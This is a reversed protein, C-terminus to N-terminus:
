PDIIRVGAPPVFRFVSEPVAVNTQLGALDFRRVSGNHETIEFRRALSDRTDIWVRLSRYDARERPILNLVRAPRGGVNEVGELTYEFRETPEGVFQAQLDVGGTGGAAPTRIAQGPNLEPQYVYFHQGDSLIIEGAPDTFRLAIRDPRQQYLTGRGTMQTRLLRNNFTMVFDARMSRVNEYAAAAARLARAAEDEQAAQPDPDASPAAAGPQVTTGDGGPAPVAPGITPTRPASGITDLATHDQETVLPSDIAVEMSPIAPAPAATEPPAEEGGGCAAVFLTLLVARTRIM